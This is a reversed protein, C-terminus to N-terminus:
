MVQLASGCPLLALGVASFVMETTVELSFVPHIFHAIKYIRPIITNLTVPRTLATEASDEELGPFLPHLMNPFM